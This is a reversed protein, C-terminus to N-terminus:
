YAVVLQMVTLNDKPRTGGFDEDRAQRDECCTRRWLSGSGGEWETTDYDWRQEGQGLPADGFHLGSVGFPETSRPVITYKGELYTDLRKFVADRRRWPVRWARSVGEGDLVLHGRSFEMDLDSRKEARIELMWKRRVRPGFRRSVEGPTLHASPSGPGGTDRGHARDEGSRQQFNAYGYSSTASVTGSTLAPCLGLFGVSGDSWRV